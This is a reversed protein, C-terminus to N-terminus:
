CFLTEVYYPTPHYGAERGESLTFVSRVRDGRGGGRFGCPVWLEQRNPCSLQM